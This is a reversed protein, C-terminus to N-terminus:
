PGPPPGKPPKPAHVDVSLANLSGDANLTGEAHIHMGVVINTLAGPTPAGPMAGPLAYTTGAAVHIVAKAGGDKGGTTITITSGSVGTVIGDLKPLKVHVSVATFSGGAGPAGQVDVDAGVTVDAKTGAQKGLAYTTDKTLTVVQTSGDHLKLTLSTDGVVTVTGGVHPIVVTLGTVTFSGDDNRIEQIRVEEGVKLDTVAIKADGSMVSADAGLTITRTWGDDTTLTIKAGDIATITIHHGPGGDKGPGHGPGGAPPPAGAAGTGGAPAPSAALAAFAPIALAACAIVVIALRAIPPLRRIPATLQSM